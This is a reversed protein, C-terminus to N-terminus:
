RALQGGLRKIVGATKLFRQGCVIPGARSGCRSTAPCIGELKAQGSSCDGALLAVQGVRLSSITLERQIEAGMWLRGVRVQQSERRQGFLCLGLRGCSAFFSHLLVHTRGCLVQFQPSVM